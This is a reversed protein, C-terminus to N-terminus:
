EHKLRRQERQMQAHIQEENTTIQKGLEKIRTTQDAIIRSQNQTENILDKFKQPTYANFNDIWLDLASDNTIKIGLREALEKKGRDFKQKLKQSVSIRPDNRKLM